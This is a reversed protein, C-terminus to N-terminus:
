WIHTSILDTSGDCSFMRTFSSSEIQRASKPREANEDVVSSSVISPPTDAQSAGSRRFGSFPLLCGGVNLLSIQDNEMTQM